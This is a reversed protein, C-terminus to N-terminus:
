QYLILFGNTMWRPKVHRGGDYECGTGLSCGSCVPSDPRCTNTYAEVDYRFEYSGAAVAGLEERWPYVMDGPCWGARAFKWNGAQPSVPNLHCDDRWIVQSAETSGLAITHTKQCFEACNELNGQGHGTILMYFGASGVGEPVEITAKRETPELPDGYNVEGFQLPIAAIPLREPDGKEYTLSADVVWGLGYQMNITPGVFTKIFARVTLPGALVTQLDTVDVTWEGGRGYPTMFRAFEVAKGDADLYSLAGPRDWDDCHNSPCSLKFSLKVSKFPGQTPLAVQQDVTQRNTTADASYYIHEATFLPVSVPEETVGDAKGGPDNDAPDKSSDNTACAFLSCALASALVTPRLM